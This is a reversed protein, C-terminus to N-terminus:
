LIISLSTKLFFCVAHGKQHWAHVLHTVGARELGVEVASGIGAREVSVEVADDVGERVYEASEDPGPLAALSYTMVNESPHRIDKANAHPPLFKHLEQASQHYRKSM